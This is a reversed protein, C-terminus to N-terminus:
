SPMTAAELNRIHTRIAGARWRRSSALRIGRQLTGDAEWRNVTSSSVGLMYSVVDAAILQDDALNEIYSRAFAPANKPVTM